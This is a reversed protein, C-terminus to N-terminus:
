QAVASQDSPKQEQSKCKKCTEYTTTKDQSPCRCQEIITGCKDCVVKFHSM